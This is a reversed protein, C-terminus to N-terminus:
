TGTGPQPLRSRGEHGAPNQLPPEERSAVFDAFLFLPPLPSSYNTQSLATDAQLATFEGAWPPAFCRGSYVDVGLDFARYPRYAVGKAHPPVGGRRELLVPGFRVGGAQRRNFNAAAPPM